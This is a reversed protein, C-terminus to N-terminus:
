TAVYEKSGRAINRRSEIIEASRMSEIHSPCSERGHSRYSHVPALAGERSNGIRVLLNTRDETSYGACRLGALVQEVHEATVVMRRVLESLALGSKPLLRQMESLAAEAEPYKRLRGFVAARWLSDWYFGPADFRMVEALAAEYDGRMYADFCFAYHYWGPYRPNLRMSKRLLALGNEFEGCFVYAVALDGINTADHPGRQIADTANLLFLEPSGSHLFHLAQARHALLCLPDRELARQIHSYARELLEESGGLRQYRDMYLMGLQAFGMSEEPAAVIAHELAAAATRWIEETYNSLYRLYYRTAQASATEDVVDSDLTGAVSRAIVGRSDAITACCIAAVSEEFSEGTDLIMGEAFTQAWLIRGSVSQMLHIVVKLQGSQRSLHVDLVFDADYRRGLESVGVVDSSSHIRKPPGIVEVGRYHALRVTLQEAVADATAVLEDDAGFVSMPLIVITPHRSPVPTWQIVESAVRPAAQETQPNPKIVPAYTGVPIDIHIPDNAGPTLYYYKLARRLRGAQVRIITDLQPDFSPDRSFARVAITYAKIQEARDALMEDVVYCLLIRLSESAAFDASEVIRGLQSRIEEQTFPLEKTTEIM